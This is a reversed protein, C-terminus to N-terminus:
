SDYNFQIRFYSGNKIEILSLKCWREDPLCATIKPASGSLKEIKAVRVNIIPKEFLATISLDLNPDPQAQQPPQPLPQTPVAQNSAAARKAKRNPSQPVVLQINMIQQGAQEMIPAKYINSISVIELHNNEMRYEIFTQKNTRRSSFVSNFLRCLHLGVFLGVALALAYSLPSFQVLSDTFYTLVSMAAGWIITLLAIGRETFMWNTFISGSFNKASQWLTNAM